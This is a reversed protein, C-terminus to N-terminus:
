LMFFRENLNKATPRTTALLRIVSSSTVIPSRPLLEFLRVAALATDPRALLQARDAAVLAFLDRVTASEVLLSCPLSGDVIRCFM